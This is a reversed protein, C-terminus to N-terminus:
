EEKRVLYKEIMKILEEKKFCNCPKGCCAQKSHNQNRCATALVGSMADIREKISRIRPGNECYRDWCDMIVSLYYATQSKAIEIQEKTPISNLWALARKEFVERGNVSGELVSSESRMKGGGLFNSHKIMIGSLFCLTM